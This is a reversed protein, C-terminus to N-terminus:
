NCRIKGSESFLCNREVVVIHSTQGAHRRATIHMRSPEVEQVATPPRQLGKIYRIRLDQFGISGITMEDSIMIM